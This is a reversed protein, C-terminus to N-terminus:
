GERAVSAVRRRVEIATEADWREVLLKHSAVLAQITQELVHNKERVEELAAEYRRHIRRVDTLDAQTKESLANLEKSRKEVRAEASKLASFARDLSKQSGSLRRVVSSAVFWSGFWSVVARIM